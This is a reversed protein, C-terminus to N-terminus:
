NHGDSNELSMNYTKNINISSKIQEMIGQGLTLYREIRGLSFKFVALLKIIEVYWCPFSYGKIKM